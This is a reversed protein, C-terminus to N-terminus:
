SGSWPRGITQGHIVKLLYLEVLQKKRGRKDKENCMAKQWAGEEKM